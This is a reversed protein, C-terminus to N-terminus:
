SKEIKRKHGMLKLFKRKWWKSKKLLILRFILKKFKMHCKYKRQREERRRPKFKKRMLNLLLPKAIIQRLKYNKLKFIPIRLSRLMLRYIAIKQKPLTLRSHIITLKQKLRSRFKKIVCKLNLFKLYM